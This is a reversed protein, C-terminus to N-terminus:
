LAGPFNVSDFLYKPFKEGTLNRYELEIRAITSNWTVSKVNMTVPGMEITDFEPPSAALDTAAVLRFTITFQGTLSRIYETLIQDTNDVEIRGTYRSNEGEDPRYVRVDCGTYEVGLVMINEINDVIRVPTNMRPHDIDMAFLLLGGGGWGMMDRTTQSSFERPM